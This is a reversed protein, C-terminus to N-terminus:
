YSELLSIMLQYLNVTPNGISNPSPYDGDFVTLNNNHM